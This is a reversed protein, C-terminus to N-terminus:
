SVSCSVQLQLIKATPELYKSHDLDLYVVVDCQILQRGVDGPYEHFTNIPQKHYRKCQTFVRKTHMQKITAPDHGRGRQIDVLHTDLSMSSSLLTILHQWSGRRNIVAIALQEAKSGCYRPQSKDTLIQSLDCATGDYLASM